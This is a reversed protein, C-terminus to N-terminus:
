VSDRKIFSGKIFVSEFNEADGELRKLLLKVAAAGMEARPQRITTLDPFLAGSSDDDDCGIVGIDNPIKVGNEYCFRYFGM